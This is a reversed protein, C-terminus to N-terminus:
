EVTMAKNYLDVIVKELKDRNLNPSSVQNIHKMFISLTSEAEDIIDSDEELNLNLHDEVIQLNQIGEKEINECFKDFWFPNSKNSVILKVYTGKHQSFDYDLIEHMTKTSDDYWVKSFM